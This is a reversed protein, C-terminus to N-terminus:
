TNCLFKIKAALFNLQTPNDTQYSFHTLKHLHRHENYLYTNCSETTESKSNPVHFDNLICYNLNFWSSFYPTLYGDGFIGFWMQLVGGCYFSKKGIHKIHEGLFHAYSGCSLLAVDFDISNIANTYHQVTEIFNRHPTQMYSHTTQNYYTITTELFLFEIDIHEHPYLHQLKPIQTQILSTFPSIILIKKKHYKKFIINKIMYTTENLTHYSIYKTHQLHQCFEPQRKVFDCANLNIPNNKYIALLQRTFDHFNKYRLTLDTETDYYGNMISCLSICQEISNPNKILNIASIFDSGGFRNIFFPQLHMQDLLDNFQAISIEQM